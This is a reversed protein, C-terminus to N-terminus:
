EFVQVISSNYPFSPKVGFFKKFNRTFHSSDHFGAELCAQTLSLNDSLFASIAKKLRSWHIFDSISIGVEEKFLHSLRSPSLLIKEALQQRSLSSDSLHEKIFAVCDTIRQDRHTSTPPPTHVIEHVLTEFTRDKTILIEENPIYHHTEHVLSSIDWEVMLFTCESNEGHFAHKTNPPIYAYSLNEYRHLPTTLRFKGKRSIILEGAPHAHLDTILNEIQFQYMGAKPDFREITM